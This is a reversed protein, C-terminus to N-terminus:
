DAGLIKGRCLETWSDGLLLLLINHNCHSPLSSNTSFLPFSDDTALFSALRADIIGHMHRSVQHWDWKKNKYEFIQQVTV